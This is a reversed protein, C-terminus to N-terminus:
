DLQENKPILIKYAFDGGAGVWKKVKKFGSSVLTQSCMYVAKRNTENDNYTTLLYTIRTLQIPYIKNINIEIKVSYRHSIPFIRM